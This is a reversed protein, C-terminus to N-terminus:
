CELLSCEFTNLISLYRTRLIVKTPSRFYKGAMVTEFVLTRLCSFSNFLIKSLFAQSPTSPHETM